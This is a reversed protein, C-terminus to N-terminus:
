LSLLKDIGTIILESFILELAVGCLGVVLGMAGIVADELLLGISIIVVGLSPLTDLGSFPPAIFSALVLIFFVLGVLRLFWRQKLLSDLRPKSFREFWRIRRIIFPLAKKQTLQGLSRQKLFWPLWITRRGIILELALLMATIEFIHTIGGTPLPLASISLLLMFALAFSKEGFVESLSIITKPGRSKLWRELETSFAIVPM